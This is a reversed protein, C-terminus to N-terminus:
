NLRDHLDSIRRHLEERLEGVHDRRREEEERLDKRIAQVDSGLRDLAAIVRDLDARMPPADAHGNVVQKRVSESSKAAKIAFWSPVSAMAAVALITLVDMWSDPNPITNM